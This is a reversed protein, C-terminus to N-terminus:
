YRLILGSTFEFSSLLPYLRSAYSNAEMSYCGQSGAEDCFFHTGPLALAPTWRGDLRLGINDTWLWKVGGGISASFLTTTTLNAAPIFRTAGLGVLFFPQWSGTDFMYLGNLHLQEVRVDFRDPPSGGSLQVEAASYARSYSLELEGNEKNIYGLSLGRLAVNKFDLRDNRPGALDKSGNFTFGVIPALEVTAGWAASSGGVLALSLFTAAIRM